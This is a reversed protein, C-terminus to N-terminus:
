YSRIGVQQGPAAVAHKLVLSSHESPKFAFLQELNAASTYIGAPAARVPVM